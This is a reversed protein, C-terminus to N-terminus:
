SRIGINTFNNMWNGSSDRRFEKCQTTTSKASLTEHHNFLTSVRQKKCRHVFSLTGCQIISYNLSFTYPFICHVTIRFNLYKHVGLAVALYNGPTGSFILVNGRVKYKRRIAASLKKMAKRLRSMDCTNLMCIHISKNKWERSIFHFTM